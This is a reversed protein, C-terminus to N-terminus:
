ELTFERGYENLRDDFNKINDRFFLYLDNASGIKENKLSAKAEEPLDKFAKVLIYQSILDELKRLQSTKGKSYLKKAYSGVGFIEFMKQKRLDM